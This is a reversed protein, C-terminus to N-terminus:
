LEYRDAEKPASHVALVAAKKDVVADNDNLAQLLLVPDESDLLNGPQLQEMLERPSLEELASVALPSLAGKPPKGYIKCYALHQTLTGCDFWEPIPFNCSRKLAPYLQTGFREAWRGQTCATLFAQDVRPDMVVLHGPIRDLWPALVPPVGKPDALILHVLLRRPLQRRLLGPCARLLADTVDCLDPHHADKPPSSAPDTEQRSILFDLLVAMADTGQCLTVPRERCLRITLPWNYETTTHVVTLDPPLPAPAFPSYEQGLFPGCLLQCCWDLLTDDDETQAWLQLLRKSVVSTDLTPEELLRQICSMSRGLVAAELPSYACQSARNPSCGAKLLLDLAEPKNLYAAAATINWWTDPPLSVLEVPPVFTSSCCYQENRLSTPTCHEMVTRFVRTTCSLALYCILFVNDSLAGDLKHLASYIAPYNKDELAKVLPGTGSYDDQLHSFDCNM